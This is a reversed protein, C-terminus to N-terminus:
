TGAGIRLTRKVDVGATEQACIATMGWPTAFAVSIGMPSPWISSSDPLAPTSFRCTKEARRTASRAPSGVRAWAARGTLLLNRREAIWDCAALKLFLPRDLRRPIQYGSRGALPPPPDHRGHENWDRALIKIRGLHSDAPFHQVQAAPEDSRLGVYVTQRLLGDETWTLYSIEVVLRPEVWHVRSLVLPSGFRTKRRPAAGLPSSARALPDLRRRLNALVKDPMGTAVRDAYILAQRGEDNYGLLARRSPPGRATAIQPM